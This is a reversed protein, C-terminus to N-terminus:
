DLSVIEVAFEKSTPHMLFLLSVGHHILHTSLGLVADHLVVFPQFKASDISIPGPKADLTVVQAVTKPPPAPQQAQAPTAFGAGSLASAAM